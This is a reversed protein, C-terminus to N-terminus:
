MEQWATNTHPTNKPDSEECNPLESCNSTDTQAEPQQQLEWSNSNPAPGPRHSPLSGAWEKNKSTVLVSSGTWTLPLNPIAKLWMKRTFLSPQLDCCHDRILPLALLAWSFPSLAPTVKLVSWLRKRPQIKVDHFFDKLFWSVAGPETPNWSWSLKKSRQASDGGCGGGRKAPILWASNWRSCAASHEQRWLRNECCLPLSPQLSREQQTGQTTDGLPPNGVRPETLSEEVSSHGPFRACHQVPQREGWLPVNWLLIGCCHRNLPFYFQELSGAMATADSGEATDGRNSGLPFQWDQAPKQAENGGHNRLRTRSFWSFGAPIRSIMVSVSTAAISEECRSTQAPYDWTVTISM